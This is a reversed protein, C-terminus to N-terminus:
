NEGGQGPQPGLGLWAGKLAVLGRSAVKAGPPVAGRVWARNGDARAVRVAVPRFGAGEQVFVFDRDGNRVVASSPVGVSGAPISAQRVDAEVFQNVRLCSTSDPIEARVSATQSSTNLQAGVAIIRGPKECGAVSVTDGVSVGSAQQASAHLDLWLRGGQALRFLETGPEVRQGVTVGQDLVVAAMRARITVSSSLSKPTLADVDTSSYGALQLMRRQEQLTALAMEQAARAERARSESIIGEALLSEDRELRSRAVEEEARAHLYERQMAALEASYVRALPQNARVSEGIQVLVAEVQGAVTSLMVETSDGPTIVQGSLRLGSGSQSDSPTAPSIVSEVVIGASKAQSTSLAIVPEAMAIAPLLALSALAAWRHM